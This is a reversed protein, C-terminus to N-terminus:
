RTGHAPVRGVPWTFALCWSNGGLHKRRKGQLATPCGPSGWGCKSEKSPVLANGQSNGVGCCLWSLLIPECTDTGVGGCSHLRQRHAGFESQQQQPIPIVKEEELSCGSPSPPAGVQARLGHVLPPQRLGAEVGQRRPDAGARVAAAAGRGGAGAGRVREAQSVSICPHLPHLPIWPTAAALPVSSGGGSNGASLAPLAQAGGRM